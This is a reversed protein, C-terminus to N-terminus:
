LVYRILDAHCHAPTARKAPIIHPKPAVHQLPCSQTVANHRDIVFTVQHKCCTTWVEDKLRLQKRGEIGDLHTGALHPRSSQKVSKLAFHRVNVSRVVLYDSKSCRFKYKDSHLCTVSLLSATSPLIPPSMTPLSRHQQSRLCQQHRLLTVTSM